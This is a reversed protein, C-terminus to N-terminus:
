FTKLRNVHNLFDELTVEMFAPNIDQFYIAIQYVVEGTENCILRIADAGGRLALYRAKYYDHGTALDSLENLYNGKQDFAHITYTNM